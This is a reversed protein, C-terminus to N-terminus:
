RRETHGPPPPGHHIVKRLLPRARDLWAPPRVWPVGERFEIEWTGQHIEIHHRACVLALNELDTAGGNEWWIVHHAQCGDAPVRCGPVVCGGDRARLALRQAHSALRQGRGLSLPAGEPSVVAARITAACALLELTADDIRDHGAAHGLGPPAATRRFSAFTRALPSGRETCAARAAALHELGVVLVLEVHPFPGSRVRARRTVTFEGESPPPQWAAERSAPGDSATPADPSPPDPSPADPSPADPSPADAAPRDGATGARPGSGAGASAPAEAEPRSQGAAPESSTGGGLAAQVLEILADMQRAGLDRDDPIVRAVGDADVAMGPRPAALATLAAKLVAGQAAGCSFRGVWSGDFTSSM